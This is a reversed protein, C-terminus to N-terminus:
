LAALLLFPILLALVLWRLYRPGEELSEGRLWRTFDGMWPGMVAFALGIMLPYKLMRVLTRVLEAPNRAHAALLMVAVILLGLATVGVVTLRIVTLLEGDDAKADPPPTATSETENGAIPEDSVLVRIGGITLPGYIPGMGEDLIEALYGDSRMASAFIAAEERTAFTHVM